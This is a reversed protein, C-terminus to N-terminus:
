WSFFFASSDICVVFSFRLPLFAKFCDFVTSELSSWGLYDGGPLNRLYVM